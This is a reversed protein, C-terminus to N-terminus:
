EAATGEVKRDSACRGVDGGYNTDTLISFDTLCLATIEQFFFIRKIM